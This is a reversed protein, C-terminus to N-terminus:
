QGGTKALIKTEFFLYDVELDGQLNVDSGVFYFLLDNDLCEQILGDILAEKNSQVVLAIRVTRTLSRKEQSRSIVIARPAVEGLAKAKTILATIVESETITQVEM